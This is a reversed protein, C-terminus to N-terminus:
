RSMTWEYAIPIDTFTHVVEHVNFHASMVNANDCVLQGAVSVDEGVTFGHNIVINSYSGSVNLTVSGNHNTATVKVPVEKWETPSVKVPISAAWSSQDGSDRHAYLVQPIANYLELLDSTKTAATLDGDDHLTAEILSVKGDHRISVSALSANTKSIAITGNLHTVSGDPSVHGTYAYNLVVPDGLAQLPADSASAVGTAAALLLLALRFHM